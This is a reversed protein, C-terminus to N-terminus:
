AIDDLDVALANAVKRLMGVSGKRAGSEIQSLTAPAIGAAQAVARATLGRHERWVRVKNDGDVIRKVVSEPVLEEEGAALRARFTHVAALDGAAEVADLLAQYDAEPLVVLREGGPAVITQVSPRATATM